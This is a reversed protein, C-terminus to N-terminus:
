VHFYIKGLLWIRIKYSSLSLASFNYSQKQSDMALNVAIYTQKRLCEPEQEDWEAADEAENLDCFRLRDGHVLAFGDDCTYTARSNVHTGDSM